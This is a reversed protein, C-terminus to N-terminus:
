AVAGADQADLRAGIRGHREDMFVPFLHEQRLAIQDAAAIGIALAALLERARGVAHARRAHMVTRERRLGPAIQELRVIKRLLLDREARVRLLRAFRPTEFPSPPGM